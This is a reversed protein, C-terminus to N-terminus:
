LRRFIGVLLGFIGVGILGLVPIAPAFPEEEGVTVSTQAQFQDVPIPTNTFPPFTFTPLREGPALTTTAEPTATFIGQPASVDAQATLTLLGGPTQTAAILTEAEAALFPDITPIDAQNLDPILNVDGNINVVDQFVWATRTPSNPYEIQLWSFRRGIVFYQEGPQIVGLRDFDTGPGSRVNADPFKAEVFARGQSTPTRTPTPPLETATPTNSPLEVPAPTGRDDQAVVTPTRNDEAAVPQWQYMVGVTTILLLMSFIMAIYRKPM